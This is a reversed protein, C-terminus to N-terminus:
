HANGHEAAEKKRDWKFHADPLTGGLEYLKAKDNVFEGRTYGSVSYVNQLFIAEEPCVEQCLGCYICRLMDIEFEKPAKEVHAQPSDPPIEGPIIRIAKPPCVFECLQCSVCKERGHPDKVLTPVGRYGPPIEPRQEPYQLTLKPAFLHRLTTRMGNLIQPLYIREALTLPKRPVTVVAM